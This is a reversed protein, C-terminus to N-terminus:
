KNLMQKILSKLEAIEERTEGLYREIDNMRVEQEQKSNRKAKYAQFGTSDTNVIAGEENRYLNNYGEVRKRSM